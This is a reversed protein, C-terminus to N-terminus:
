TAVPLIMKDFIDLMIKSDCSKFKYVKQLLGHLAKIAKKHLVQGADNLSGNSSFSTGLYRYNKATVLLSGGFNVLSIRKKKQKSFVVYKTKSKNM